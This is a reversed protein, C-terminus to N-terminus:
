GRNKLSICTGLTIALVEGAAPGPRPWDEHLVIKDIRGHGETVMARMTTPLEASM